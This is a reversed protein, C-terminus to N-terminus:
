LPADHQVAGETDSWYKTPPVRRYTYAENQRDTEGRTLLDGHPSSLLHLFYLLYTAHPPSPTTSPSEEEPMNSGLSEERSALRSDGLQEYLNCRIEKSRDDIDNQSKVTTGGFTLPVTHARLHDLPPNCM